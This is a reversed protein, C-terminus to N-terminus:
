PNSDERLKRLSGTVLSPTAGKIANSAAGAPNYIGQAIKGMAKPSGLVFSAVGEPWYNMLLMKGLMGKPLYDSLATNTYSSLIQKRLPELISKKTIQELKQVGDLRDLDTATMKDPKEISKRVINEIDKGSTAQDSLNTGLQKEVEALKGWQQKFKTLLKYSVGGVKEAEKGISKKMQLVDNQYSGGTQKNIDKEFDELRRLKENMPIGRERIINTFPKNTAPNIIQSEVKKEIIPASRRQIGKFETAIRSLTRPEGGTAQVEEIAEKPMMNMGMFQRRANIKNGVDKYAGELTPAVRSAEGQIAEPSGSFTRKFGTTLGRYAEAPTKTFKGAISPFVGKIGQMAATPLMSLGAAAATQGTTPRGEEATQTAASLGGGLLGMKILQAIKNGAGLAGGLPALPASEGIMSAATEPIGQPRFGPRTAEAARQLASNPQTPHAILNEAGVAAGRFGRFPSTAIQAVEQLGSKATPALSPVKPKYADAKAKLYNQKAYSLVEDQSATDPATIEYPNGDPGTIRYRAM